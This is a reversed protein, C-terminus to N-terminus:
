LAPASVQSQVQVRCGQQSLCECMSSECRLAERWGCTIRQAASVYIHTKM